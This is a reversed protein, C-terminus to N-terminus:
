SGVNNQEYIHDRLKFYVVSDSVGRLEFDMVVVEAGTATVIAANAQYLNTTLQVWGTGDSGSGAGDGHNNFPVVLFVDDADIDNLFPVTVVLSTSTSFTTITRSQGVNAGSICWVLGGDMDVAALTAATLTTGASEGSAETHTTLATGETAGGSIFMSIVADPRIDLSIIGETDGQTASYTGSDLSLGVADLGDTTSFTSINHTTMMCPIGARGVTAGLKYKKKYTAGGNIHQAVQGM